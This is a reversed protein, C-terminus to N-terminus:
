PRGLQFRVRRLVELAVKVLDAEGSELTVPLPSAKIVDIALDVVSRPKPGPAHLSANMRQFVLEPSYWGSPLLLFPPSEVLERSVQDGSIASLVLVPGQKEWFDAWKSAFLFIEEAGTPQFKPLAKLPIGVDKLRRHLWGARRWVQGEVQIAWEIGSFLVRFYPELRSEPVQVAFLGATRTYRMGLISFFVREPLSLTYDLPFGPGSFFREQLYKTVFYQATAVRM